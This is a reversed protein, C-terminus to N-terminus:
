NKKPILATGVLYLDSCNYWTNHSPRVDVIVEAGLETGKEALGVAAPLYVREQMGNENNVDFYIKKGEASVHRLEYDHLNKGVSQVYDSASVTLILKDVKLELESVAREYEDKKKREEKNFAKQQDWKAKIGFM